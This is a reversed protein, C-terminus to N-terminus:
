LNPWKIFNSVLSNSIKKSFDMTDSLFISQTVNSNNHLPPWQGFVSTTNGQCIM